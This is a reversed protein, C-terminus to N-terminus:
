ATSASDENPQYLKVEQPIYLWRNLYRGTRLSVRWAAIEVDEKQGGLIVMIPRPNYNYPYRSINRLARKDKWSLVPSSAPHTHWDGLYSRLGHSEDHVDGSCALDYRYDPKYCYPSHKAKPGPGFTEAVVVELNNSSHYGTLIGGTENPEKEQAWRSMKELEITSIWIKM